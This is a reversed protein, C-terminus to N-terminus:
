FLNWILHRLLEDWILKYMLSTRRESLWIPSSLLAVLVKNDMNGFCSTITNDIGSPIGREGRTRKFGGICGYSHTFFQVGNNATATIIALEINKRHRTKIQNVNRQPFFISIESINKFMNIIIWLLIVSFREIMCFAIQANLITFQWMVTGTIFSIISLKLPKTKKSVVSESWQWAKRNM